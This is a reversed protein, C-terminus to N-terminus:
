RGERLSNFYDEAHERHSKPLKEVVVPDAAESGQAEMQEKLSEAVLGRRNPGDAEGVLVAAGRGPKQRVRSDRFSTDNKEDPRPGFGRGAGMGNGSKESFRDSMSGGMGGQCTKCGQGNCQKCAMADKAMQLQDMAMDMMEGEEMEQQMQELQQMMESMAQSAGAKDGQQMCQQCEGMKQALQDMKNMQQQKQQMQDLKQQLEGAKSLNGQKREQEIQKKLKEMAEKRAESAESLKQQLQKLQQELQQKAEKDLKGSEMQQKLKNLEQMAMKWDGKKMAEVAKDAPGKNLNNLKQFQKRLEQNGGLQQRRQELQKALDNLKVLSKKRNADEAKAMKETQKELESFLGEAEKLGKKSAQKRREAMRKRLEKTANDLQEKTVETAKPDISSQAERNDVFVALVFALMAPVLPLWARGQLRIRFKEDIDLRRISRIADNVLAQGAPTDVDAPTLSLSSAVRERLNYRRDIEVAAELESRGRLMTWFMAVLLGGVVGALGCSLEWRAPLDVVTFIRPIAIAVFAVIMGVFWCRILRNFFLEMSLRRRVRSVQELIQDM